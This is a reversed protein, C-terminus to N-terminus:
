RRREAGVGGRARRRQGDACVPPLRRGASVGDRDRACAPAHRVSHGHCEYDGLEPQEGRTRDWDSYVECLPGRKLMKPPPNMFFSQATGIAATNARAVVIDTTATPRSVSTLTPLGGVGNECFLCFSGASATFAFVGFMRAAPEFSSISSSAHLAPASVVQGNVGPIPTEPM